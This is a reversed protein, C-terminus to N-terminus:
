HWPEDRPCLVKGHQTGAPLRSLMDPVNGLVRWVANEHRVVFMGGDDLLFIHGDEGSLPGKLELDYLKWPEEYTLGDFSIGLAKRVTSSAGDAALVINSSVRTGGAATRLDVVTPGGEQHIQTVATGWEVDIGAEALTERLIRESAEQSQVCMFPFRHEVDGLRLKALIKDGRHLNLMTMRRGHALFKKTVGTAELLDLSRANVGFAKSYPSPSDNRDIIRAKYGKQALFLATALGTPGAGIILIDQNPQM